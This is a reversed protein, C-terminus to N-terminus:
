PLRVAERFLVLLLPGDLLWILALCVAAAALLRWWSRRRHHLRTVRLSHPLATPCSTIFGAAAEVVRCAVEAEVRFLERCPARGLRVRRNALMRHAITEVHVCDPVPRSWIETWPSFAAYGESRDIERARGQIHRATRGVKVVWPHSASALIYVWGPTTSSSM